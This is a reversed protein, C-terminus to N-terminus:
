IWSSIIAKRAIDDRRMSGVLAFIVAQLSRHLFLPKAGHNAPQTFACDSWMDAENRAAPRLGALMPMPMLQFM